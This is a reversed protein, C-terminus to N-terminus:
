YASDLDGSDATEIIEGSGASVYDVRIRDVDNGTYVHYLTGYMILEDAARREIVGIEDDSVTVTFVSYDDNYEIKEITSNGGAGVIESIGQDVYKKFNSILEDYQERSMVIVLSGDDELVASKYGNRDRVADAEEQTKVDEYITPIVITVTNEAKETEAASASEGKNEETKEGQAQANDQEKAGSEGAAAQTMGEETGNEQAAETQSSGSGSPASACGTMIMAAAVAILFRKVAPRSGTMKTETGNNMRNKHLILNRERKM